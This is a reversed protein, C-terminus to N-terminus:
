GGHGLPPALENLHRLAFLFAQRDNSSATGYVLWADLNQPEARTVDLALARARARDGERLALQARLLDVDTDPNLQKADHLLADAQRARAATVPSAGTVIATAADTDHAQRIGIAFWVTAALAALIALVRVSV